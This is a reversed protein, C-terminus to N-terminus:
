KLSHAIAHQGEGAAAKCFIERVIKAREPIVEYCERDDNWRLWGPLMRTFPKGTAVKGAADRRKQDFAATVRSGKIASEEHARMFRLAMMMFAVYDQTLTEKSYVRGNDSLDVISVGAAVISNLTLVADMVNQRSIRDLSEVLLFSGQPVQGDKM